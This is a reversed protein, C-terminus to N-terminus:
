KQWGERQQGFQLALDMFEVPGPFELRYSIYNGQVEEPLEIRTVPLSANIANSLSMGGISPVSSIAVESGDVIPTVLVYANDVSCSKLSLFLRRGYIEPAAQGFWKTQIRCTIPSSIDYPGKFAYRVDGSIAVMLEKRKDWPSASCFPINAFAIQTWAKARLDYVLAPRTSPLPFSLLYMFKYFVGVARERATLPISKIVDEVKQSILIPESGDFYYVGEDGLFFIASYDQTFAISKYAICGIGETISIPVKRGDDWLWISHPKLIYLRGKLELMGTPKEGDHGIVATNFSDWYWPELPRSWKLKNDKRDIVFLRNRYVAGFIAKPPPEHDWEIAKGLESDAKIDSSIVTTTNNSIVHALLYNTLTGGGRYINRAIIDIPGTPINELRIGNGSVTVPESIPSPNGEKQGSTVYTVLYAYTGQMASSLNIPVASLVTTPAPSGIEREHTNGDYKFMGDHRFIYLRGEMVASGIPGSTPTFLALRTDGSTIDRFAWSGSADDVNICCLRDVGSVDVFNYLESIMSSIVVKSVQGKRTKPAGKSFLLDLVDICEENDIAHPSIWSNLGRSFNTRVLM